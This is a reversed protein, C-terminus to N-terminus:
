HRPQQPPPSCQVCLSSYCLLCSSLCTSSDYSDACAALVATTACCYLQHILALVAATTVLTNTVQLSPLFVPVKFLDKSGTRAAVVRHALDHLLQLGLIAGAVPLAMGAVAIDGDNIKQFFATNLAATHVYCCLVYCATTYVHHLRLILKVHLSPAATHCCCPRM